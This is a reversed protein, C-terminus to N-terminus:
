IGPGESDILALETGYDLKTFRNERLYDHISQKSLPAGQAKAQTLDILTKGSLENETFETHPKISVDDPNAGIWTAYLKLLKELAAAGALAIQPLTATQAAVRIRLADGSEKARSTADSVQNSKAYARKYDTELASRQEPLGQSNVGVYKADAGMPLDIRAGAGTRVVDGNDLRGGITVLTDQGQMFLNQRYDAEGRYILLCLEALGLLPPNDPNPNIDASNIAVFPIETVPSQLYLFPKFNATEFSSLADIKANVYFGQGTPTLQNVGLGGEEPLNEFLALVLYQEKYEWSLGGDLEYSSEDLVVMRYSSVDSSQTTDDWNRVAREKYLVFFPNVVNNADSEIDLLLGVRGSILQETNIRRLLLELNEGLKTAKTLLGEMQPPLTIVPPKRHMIGIAAAIAERYIDPYYARTLYADYAKTGPSAPTPYGDAIHGSTPPLYVETKEKIPTVDYSDRCLEWDKLYENYKPHTTTVSM